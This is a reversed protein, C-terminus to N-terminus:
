RRWPWSFGPSTEPLADARPTTRLEISLIALPNIDPRFEVPLGQSQALWTLSAEDREASLLDGMIEATRLQRDEHSLSAPDDAEADVLADLASILTPKLLSAFLGIVDVTEHFALSRQEGHVESRVSCRGSSM